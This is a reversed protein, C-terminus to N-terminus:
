SLPQNENRRELSKDGGKYSVLWTCLVYMIRSKIFFFSVPTFHKVVRTAFVSETLMFGDFLFLKLSNKIRIQHISVSFFFFYFSM